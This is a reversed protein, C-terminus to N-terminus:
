FYILLTYFLPVVRISLPPPFSMKETEDLMRVVNQVNKSPKLYKFM